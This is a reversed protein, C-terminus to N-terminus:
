KTKDLGVFASTALVRFRGPSVRGATYVSNLPLGPENPPLLERPPQKAAFGRLVRFAERWVPRVQPVFCNSCPHFVLGFRGNPFASLDAMDGEVTALELGDRDAVLRDRALQAPSNDLVTVAAGAAALVPAQQGGSSALCLVDLGPLAPFWDAPM